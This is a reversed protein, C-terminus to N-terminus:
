LVDVLTTVTKVAIPGIGRFQIVALVTVQRREEGRM